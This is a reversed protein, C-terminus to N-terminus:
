KSNAMESLINGLKKAIESDDGRHEKAWFLFANMEEKTFCLSSTLANLGALGQGALHVITGPIGPDVGEFGQYQRVVELAFKARDIPDHPFILNSTTLDLWPVTTLKNLERLTTYPVCDCVGGDDSGFEGEIVEICEKLLKTPVITSEPDIVVEVANANIETVPKRHELRVSTTSWAGNDFVFFYASGMRGTRYSDLCIAYPQDSPPAELEHQTRTSKMVYVPRTSSLVQAPMASFMCWYASDTLPIGYPVDEIAIYTTTDDGPLWVLDGQKYERRMLHFIELHNVGTAIANVYQKDM